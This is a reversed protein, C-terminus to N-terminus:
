GRMNAPDVTVERVKVTQDVSASALLLGHPSFAVSTVPGRHGAFTRLLEGSQPDWLRVTRDAGGSALLQGDPSFALCHIAGRHGVLRRRVEGSERDWVQLTAGATALVGGDPSLAVAFVPGGSATLTQEVAGTDLNWCKVTQDYSGSVLAPGTSPCALALVRDRHGQLTGREAGEAVDWLRIAQDYSISALTKGDASFALARIPGTHKQLDFRQQTTDVEWVRVAQDDGGSALLQGDPSFAVARVPGTHGQLAACLKARTVDWLKIVQDHSGSALLLNDPSFAVCLVRGTHGMLTRPKLKGGSERAAQREPVKFISIVQRGASPLTFTEARVEAGARTITLMHKGARLPMEVSQAVGAEQWPVDTGDVAVVLDRPCDPDFELALTGMPGESGGAHTTVVHTKRRRSGALQASSVPGTGGAFPALAQAAEAPTAYREAPDKAMLRGVIRALEPSVEPRLEGLPRPTQELHAVVKQMPGRAPFPVEGVLLHYLTCGLSYLDARIDAAHPDRAQEPAVYDPTGMVSGAETLGEPPPSDAPRNIFNALGFDLIKVLGEPTRMLNQPKIDRHVMGREFAHQLGLAGQRIYDCAEAVPLPGQEALFAALNTGAVFEMVLFHTDGAKEADYAVVINPHMLRAAARVERRFRAVAGPDATWRRHIVKLAVPREMLRHEAQYVVGMGGSGLRKLLRYRSHRALAAPVPSGVRVSPAAGAKKKIAEAQVPLRDGPVALPTKPPDSQSVCEAKSLLLDLPDKPLNEVQECCLECHALHHEIEASEPEETHGSAYAALRQRDPHLGTEDNM